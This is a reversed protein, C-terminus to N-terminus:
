GWQSYRMMTINQIGLNNFNMFFVDKNCEECRCYQGDALNEEFLNAMLDSNCLRIRTHIIQAKQDEGYYREKVKHTHTLM